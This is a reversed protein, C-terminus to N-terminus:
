EMKGALLFGDMTAGLSILMYTANNLLECLAKVLSKEAQLKDNRRSQENRKKGDRVANPSTPLVKPFFALLIACLYSLVVILLFGLWWAGVWKPSTLSLFDPAESSAAVGGVTGDDDHLLYFETFINLLRGGM